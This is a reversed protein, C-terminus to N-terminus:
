LYYLLLLLTRGVNNELQKEVLFNLASKNGAAQKLFMEDSSLFFFAIKKGNKKM